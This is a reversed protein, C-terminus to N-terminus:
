CIVPYDRSSINDSSADRGSNWESHRYTKRPLSSIDISIFIGDYIDHSRLHPQHFSPTGSRQRHYRADIDVARGRALGVAFIVVDHWIAMAATRTRTDANGSLYERDHIGSFAGVINIFSDAATGHVLISPNSAPLKSSGTRAAYFCTPILELATSELILFEDRGFQPNSWREHIYKISLWNFIQPFIRHSKKMKAIPFNCLFFAKASTDLFKPLYLNLFLKTQVMSIIM